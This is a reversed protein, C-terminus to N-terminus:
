PNNKRREEIHNIKCFKLENSKFTQNLFFNWPYQISFNIQICYTKSVGHLIFIFCWALTRFCHYEQTLVKVFSQFNFKKDWPDVRNTCYRSLFIHSGSTPLGGMLQHSQIWRLGCSKLDIRTYLEAVNIIVEWNFSYPSIILLKSIISLQEGDKIDRVHEQLLLISLLM